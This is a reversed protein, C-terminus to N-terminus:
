DFLQWEKLALDELMMQPKVHGNWENISLTGIASLKATQSIEDHLHGLHFGIGDLSAGNQVFSMKLHNSESGIRRMQDIHVGELMVKPTPNNVGFPALAELQKIVTLSISDVTTSLDIKTLPKFDEETLVEKAQNNLRERLLNLDSEKMTLGAA